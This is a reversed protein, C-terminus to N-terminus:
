PLGDWYPSYEPETETEVHGDLFVINLSKGPHRQRIRDLFQYQNFFDTGNRTDTYLGKKSPHHYFDRQVWKKGGGEQTGVVRTGPAYAVHNVTNTAASVPRDPCNLVSNQIRAVTPESIGINPALIQYWYRPSDYESAARILHDDHEDAYIMVGLHMQRLQSSCQISRATARAATLAPLLVSIMLAIISIVVLLEILTFGRTSKFM